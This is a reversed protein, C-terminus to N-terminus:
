FNWQGNFTLHSSFRTHEKPALLPYGLITQYSFSKISGELGLALGALYKEQNHFINGRTESVSGYDLATFLLQGQIPTLWSFKQRVLFQNEAKYGAGSAFGYVSNLGGITSGDLLGDIESKTLQVSLKPQYFFHQSTLKFPFLADIDLNFIPVGNVSHIPSLKAGKLPISQKYNLKVNINGGRLFRYQQKIGMMIYPSRREHVSINKGLITNRYTYYQLGGILTVIRQQSPRFQYHTEFSLHQQQTEQVGKASKLVKNKSEIQYGFLSFRWYRYPFKFFFIHKKIGQSKMGDLNRSLTLSLTDNLQLLNGFSFQASGFLDGYVKREKNDVSLLGSFTREGVQNISILTKFDDNLAQKIEVKVHSNPREKLNSVGQEIDNINLIDGRKIPMVQSILNAKAGENEATIDGVYGANLTIDLVGRDAFLDVNGVESTIYGADYLMANLINIDQELLIATQCHGELQKKWKDLAHQLVSSTFRQRNRLDVQKITFCSPSSAVNVENPKFRPLPLSEEKLTNVEDTFMEESPLIPLDPIFFDNENAVSKKFCFFLIILFFASLRMRM